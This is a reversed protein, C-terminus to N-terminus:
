KYHRRMEDNFPLALLEWLVDEAQADSKTRPDRYLIELLLSRDGSLFAEMAMELRALRPLLAMKTLAKPLRYPAEPHIGKADVRASVEVAVDSPLSPITSENRVDLVFREGLDNVLSEIFPVIQEESKEPPFQRFLDTDSDQALRFIMHTREAVRQLYRAWGIESDPGGFDGYWYQKTKLDYHYKWSGGRVTDGVPLLGYLRYMDIAARSLDIDFENIPRYEEWYKESDRAIWEDVRPYLDAGESNQFRTLFINHNFGAVQIQVEEPDLDLKRAVDKYGLYGHCYGVTKIKTERTLLTGAECEPNAVDILMADPCIAEMDRALDLFFKLQYYAQFTTSYDQIMNFEVAEVGRYYGHKESVARVIEQQEHGGALVTDIVFDAGALATKRDTTKEFHLDSHVGKSYRTAMSYVADLRSRDLDMLTVSSGPLGKSLCFDKIVKMSFAASGAGVFCIKVLSLGRNIEFVTHNLIEMISNQAM